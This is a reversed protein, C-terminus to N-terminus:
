KKALCISVNSLRQCDWIEFQNRISELFNFLTLTQNKKAIKWKKVQFAESISSDLYIQHNIKWFIDICTTFIQNFQGKQLLISYNWVLTAFHRPVLCISVNKFWLALKSVCTVIPQFWKQLLFWIKM